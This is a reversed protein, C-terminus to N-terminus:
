SALLRMGLMAVIVLLIAAIVVAGTRWLPPAVATRPTASIAGADPGGRALLRRQCRACSVLHAVVDAPGKGPPASDMAAFGAETLCGRADLLATM